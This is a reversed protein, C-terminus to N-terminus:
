SVLSHFSQVVFALGPLLLAANVPGLSSLRKEGGSGM